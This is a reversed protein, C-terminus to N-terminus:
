HLERNYQMRFIILTLIISMLLSISLATSQTTTYKRCVNNREKIELIKQDLDKGSAYTISLNSLADEIDEIYQSQGTIAIYNKLSTAYVTTYLMNYHVNEAKLEAIELFDLAEYCKDAQFSFYISIFIFSISILVVVFLLINRKNM